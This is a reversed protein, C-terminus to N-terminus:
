AVNHITPIMVLGVMMAFGRFNLSFIARCVCFCASSVAAKSAIKCSTVEAVLTLLQNRLASQSCLSKPLLRRSYSYLSNIIIHSHIEVNTILNYNGGQAFNNRNRYQSAQLIDPCTYNCSITDCKAQM